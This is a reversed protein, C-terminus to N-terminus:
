PEPQYDLSMDWNTSKLALKSIGLEGEGGGDQMVM